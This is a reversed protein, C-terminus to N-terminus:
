KTSKPVPVFVADDIKIYKPDPGAKVTGDPLRYQHARVLKWGNIRVTFNLIESVTGVPLDGYPVIFRPPGKLQKIELHVIDPVKEDLRLADLLSYRIDDPIPYKKLSM